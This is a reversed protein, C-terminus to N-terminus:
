MVGESSIIDEVNNPCPSITLNQNQHFYNHSIFSNHLVVPCNESNIGLTTMVISSNGVLLPSLM